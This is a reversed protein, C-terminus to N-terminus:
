ALALKGAEYRTLRDLYGTLGGNIKRTITKFDGSDALANLCKWDWYDCASLAAWQTEMLALPDAEFDPVGPFRERLRQTVRRYNARGTTQILGRGRYRSGDGAQTNGLREALDSPPEYREQQATPGWIESTWRLGGSEHGIQALFAAQREPTDIGYFAMGVSLAPAFLEARKLRAGTCAAIQEPNM